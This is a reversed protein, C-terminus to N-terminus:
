SSSRTHSSRNLTDLFDSRQTSYSRINDMDPNRMPTSMAPKNTYHKRPEEEKYMQSRYMAPQLMGDSLEGRKFSSFGLYVKSDNFVEKRMKKEFDPKHLPSFKSQKMNLKPTLLLSKQSFSKSYRSQAGNTDNNELPTLKYVSDKAFLSKKSSFKGDQFNGRSSM